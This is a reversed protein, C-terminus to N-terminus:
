SHDVRITALIRYHNSSSIVSGQQRRKQIGRLRCAQISYKISVISADWTPYSASLLCSSLKGASPRQLQLAPSQRFVSRRQRPRARHRRWTAVDFLDRRSTQSVHRGRSSSAIVSCQGGMYFVRCRQRRRMQSWVSLSWLGVRRGVALSEGPSSTM